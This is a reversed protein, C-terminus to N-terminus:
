SRKIPFEVDAPWRKSEFIAREALTTVGELNAVAMEYCKIIIRCSTAVAGLATSILIREASPRRDCFQKIGGDGGAETYTLLLGHYNPHAFESLKEFFGWLPADLEKTLNKIITIVNRSEISKDIRLDEAKGGLLSRRLTELVKEIEAPNSRQEVREIERMTDWLMCSTELTGRAMLASTALNRRNMERIAAEALEITRRLCVQLLIVILAPMKSVNSFAIGDCEQVKLKHLVDLMREIDGPMATDPFERKISDEFQEMADIM